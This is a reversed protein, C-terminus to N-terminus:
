KFGGGGGGGGLVGEGACWLTRLGAFCIRTGAFLLHAKVLVPCGITVQCVCFICIIIIIIFLYIFLYIYIYFYIYHNTGYNM